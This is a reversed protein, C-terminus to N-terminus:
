NILKNFDYDKIPLDCIGNERTIELQISQAWGTVIDEGKSVFKRASSAQSVKSFDNWRISYNIVSYLDGIIQLTDSEVEFQNSKDNFVKDMVMLEVTLTVLRETISANNVNM